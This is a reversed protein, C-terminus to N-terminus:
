PALLLTLTSANRVECCRRGTALISSYRAAAPIIIESSALPHTLIAHDFRGIGDDDAAPNHPAADQVVQRRPAHGPHQQLAVGQAAAGGSAGGAGHPHMVGGFDVGTHGPVAQLNEAMEAVNYAALAAVGVGAIQHEGAGAGGVAEAGVEGQLLAYPDMGGFDAAIVGGFQGGAKVQVVAGGDSPLRKGAVGVRRCGGQGVGGAGAFQAGADPQM